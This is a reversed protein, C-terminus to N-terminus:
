DARWSSPADQSTTTTRAHSYAGDPGYATCDRSVCVQTNTPPAYSATARADARTPTPTLRSANARAFAPRRPLAVVACHCCCVHVVNRAVFPGYWQSCDDNDGDGLAIVTVVVPVCAAAM